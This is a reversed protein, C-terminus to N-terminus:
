RASIKMRPQKKVKEYEEKMKRGSKGLRSYPLQM